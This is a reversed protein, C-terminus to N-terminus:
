PLLPPLPTAPPTTPAPETDREPHAFADAGMAAMRERCYAERAAGGDYTRFLPKLLMAQAAAFDEISKAVRLREDENRANALREANRWVMERQFALTQYVVTKEMETSPLDLNANRDYRRAVEEFVDDFTDSLAENFLNHDRKHSNGRGDHLGARALMFPMDNSVHANIGLLLDGIGSMEKKDAAELAIRWAPRVRGRRAPDDWLRRVVFYQRAFEADEQALWAPDHFYSSHEGGATRAVREYEDTVIIYNSLFLGKRDCGDRRLLAHMRALTRDVCRPSGDPCPRDPDPAGPNGIPPLLGVLSFYPPEGEGAPERAAATATIAACALALSCAAAVAKRGASSM